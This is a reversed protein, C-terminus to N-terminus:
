SATLQAIPRVPFCFRGYRDDGVEINEEGYQARIDAVVRRAFLVVDTLESSEIAVVTTDRKEAMRVTQELHSSLMEMPDDNESISYLGSTGFRLPKQSPSNSSLTVIAIGDQLVSVLRARLEGDVEEVDAVVMEQCGLQILAPRLQEEGDAWAVPEPDCFGVTALSGAISQMSDPIAVDPADVMMPEVYRAAVEAPELSCAETFTMTREPVEKTSKPELCVDMREAVVSTISGLLAAAGVSGALYGIVAIAIDGNIQGFQAEVFMKQYGYVLLGIGTVAYVIRTTKGARGYRMPFGLISLISPGQFFICCALSPGGSGCIVLGVAVALGGLWFWQRADAVSPVGQVPEYVWVAGDFEKELAIDEFELEAELVQDAELDQDAGENNGVNAEAMLAKTLQMDFGEGQTLTFRGTLTGSEEIEAFAAETAWGTQPVVIRAAVESPEKGIPYVKIPQMVTAAIQGFNIDEVALEFAEQQDEVPVEPDFQKLMDEFLGLPNAQDLDVDVLRVYSNDSLGIEVLEQWTMEVPEEKMTLARHYEPTTILVGGVLGMWAIMGGVIVLLSRPHTTNHGPYSM